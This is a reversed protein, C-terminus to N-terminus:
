GSLQRWLQLQSRRLPSAQVTLPVHCSCMRLAPMQRRCPRRPRGAGVTGVKPSSNLPTQDNRAHFGRGRLFSADM